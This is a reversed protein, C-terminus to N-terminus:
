QERAREERGRGRERQSLSTPRFQRKSHGAGRKHRWRQSCDYNHKASPYIDGELAERDVQHSLLHHEPLLCIYIFSPTHTQTGGQGQLRGRSDIKLLLNHRYRMKYWIYQGRMDWGCFDIQTAGVDSPADRAVYESDEFASLFVFGNHDHKEDTSNAEVKSKLLSLWRM